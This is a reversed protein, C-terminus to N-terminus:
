IFLGAASGGEGLDRRCLKEREWGTDVPPEPEPRTSSATGLVTRSSRSSLNWCMGQLRSVCEREVCSGALSLVIGRLLDIFSVYHTLARVDLETIWNVEAAGM